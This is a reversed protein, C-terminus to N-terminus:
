STTNMHISDSPSSPFPGPPGSPDKNMMIGDRDPQAVHGQQGQQSPNFDAIERLLAPWKVMDHYGTTRVGDPLIPETPRFVTISEIVKHGFELKGQVLAWLIDECSETNLLAYFQWSGVRFTQRVYPPGSWTPMDKGGLQQGPLTRSQLCRLMIRIDLQNRVGTIFVYNLWQRMSGFKTPKMGQPNLGAWLAPNLPGVARLTVPDALM